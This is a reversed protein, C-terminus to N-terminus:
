GFVEDLYNRQLILAVASGRVTLGGNRGILGREALEERVLASMAEPVMGIGASSMVKLRTKASESLAALTAAVSPRESVNAQEAM